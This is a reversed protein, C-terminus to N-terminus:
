ARLHREMQLESRISGAVDKIQDALHEVIADLSLVGVLRGASGTVPMRRVGVRRMESLAYGLPRSEEVTVPDDAMVDGVTLSAPDVGKALVEVVLDRDTLVGLPREWGGLPSPEAVVLYGVHRDRMLQAARILEEGPRVTVPEPNCLTNIDMRPLGRIVAHM